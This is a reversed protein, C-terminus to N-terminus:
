SHRWYDGTWITGPRFIERESIEGAEAIKAGENWSMRGKESTRTTQIEATMARELEEMSDKLTRYQLEGEEDLVISGEKLLEDIDELRSRLLEYRERAAPSSKVEESLQFNEMQEREGTGTNQSNTTLTAELEEMSDRLARYQLEGEKDLSVSGGELLKEIDEVRARLIEYRERNEQTNRIEESYRCQEEDKKEPEVQHCVAQGYCIPPGTTRRPRGDRRLEVPRDTGTPEAEVQTEGGTPVPRSNM